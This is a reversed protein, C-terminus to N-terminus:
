FCDIVIYERWPMDEVLKWAVNEALDYASYGDDAGIFWTLIDDPITTASEYKGMGHRQAEDYWLEFLWEAVDEAADDDNWYYRECNLGCYGSYRRKVDDPKLIGTVKADCVDHYYTDYDSPTSPALCMMPLDPHEAIVQAVKAAHELALGDTKKSM